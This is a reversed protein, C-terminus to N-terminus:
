RPPGSGAGGSAESRSGAGGRAESARTVFHRLRQQERVWARVGPRACTPSRRVVSEGYGAVLGLAAPDRPARFLARAVLYSPRYGLFHSVRGQAAWSSWLTRERSGEPRHHYFPLDRLIATRWGLANAEAVDIADWGTRPELPLVQELCARRYLRAAGWVFTGTAYREQWDDGVLEYCTGSVIGLRDDRALEDGLRRFYDTALTLDADLQAVADPLPGLEALGFHFAEVIPAGRERHELPQAEVLRIWPHERILSRAVEATGDTSGNEVLIWTEPRWTQAAVTDVLRDLTAAEDRIPTIIAYATL